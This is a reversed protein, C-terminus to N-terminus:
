MILDESKLKQFRQLIKQALPQAMQSSSKITLLESRQKQPWMPRKNKRFKVASKSLHLHHGLLLRSCLVRPSIMEHSSTSTLRTKPSYVSGHQPSSIFSECRFAKHTEINSSRVDPLAPLGEPESPCSEVGTLNDAMIFSEPREVSSPYYAMERGLRRARAKSVDAAHKSAMLHMNQDIYECVAEAEEEPTFHADRFFGYGNRIDHFGEIFLCALTGLVLMVTTIVAITTTLDPGSLKYDFQGLVGYTVINKYRKDRYARCTYFGRIDNSATAVLRLVRGDNVSRVSKVKMANSITSDLFLWHASNPSRTTRAHLCTLNLRQSKGWTTEYYSGSVSATRSSVQVSNDKFREMSLEKLDLLDKNVTISAIIGSLPTVNESAIYSKVNDPVGGVFYEETCVVLNSEHGKSTTKYHEKYTEVIDENAFDEFLVHLREHHNISAEIVNTGRKKSLIIDIWQDPLYDSSSISEFRFNMVALKLKIRLNQLYFLLWTSTNRDQMFIIIGTDLQSKITLKIQWEDPNAVCPLRLFQDYDLIIFSEEAGASEYAINSGSRPCYGSKCKDSCSLQICLPIFNLIFEQIEGHLREGIVINMKDNPLEPDCSFTSRISEPEDNLRMTASSSTVTVLVSHWQAPEIVNRSCLRSVTCSPSRGSVDLCIHWKQLSLRVLPNHVKGRRVLTGRPSLPLFRTYFHFFTSRKNKFDFRLSSEGNFLAVTHTFTKCPRLHCSGVEIRPGTCFKGSGAPEPRSCSRFRSRRGAGCSQSCPGWAGWGSWGGDLKCEKSECVEIQDYQGRCHTGWSSFIRPTNTEICTRKRRKIGVGCSESCATWPGWKSWNGGSDRKHIACQDGQCEKVQLPTGTCILHASSPPPMDCKRFRWRLGYGCRSGCSSWESWPGWEGVVLCGLNHKVCQLANWLSEPSFQWTNDHELSVEIAEFPCELTLCREALAPVAELLRLAENRIADGEILKRYDDLTCNTIYCPESEQDTGSCPLGDPSPSPNNCERIRRRRGMDDCPGICRSWPSWPAWSGDIPCDADSIVGLECELRWVAQQKKDSPKKAGVLIFLGLLSICYHYMVNNKHM